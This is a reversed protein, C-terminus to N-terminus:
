GSLLPSILWHLCTPLHSFPESSFVFSCEERSPISVSWDKVQQVVEPVLNVRIYVGVSRVKQRARVERGAGEEFM